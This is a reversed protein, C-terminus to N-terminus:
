EGFIIDEFQVDDAYVEMMQDLNGFNGLWMKAWDLNMDLGRLHQPPTNSCPPRRQSLISVRAPNSLKDSAQSEPRLPIHAHQFPTSRQPPPLNARGVPNIRGRKSRRSVGASRRQAADLM